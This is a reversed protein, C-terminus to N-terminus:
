PPKNCHTYIYIYEHYCGKCGWTYTAWTNKWCTKWNLVTVAFTWVHTQSNQQQKLKILCRTCEFPDYIRCRKKAIIIIGKVFFSYILHTAVPIKPLMSRSKKWSMESKKQHDFERALITVRRTKIWTRTLNRTSSGHWMYAYIRTYIDINIMHVEWVTVLYILEDIVVRLLTCCRIRNAM